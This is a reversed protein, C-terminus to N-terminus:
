AGTSSIIAMGAASIPTVVKWNTEIMGTESSPNVAIEGNVYDYWVAEGGVAASGIEDVNCFFDGSGWLSVPEGVQITYGSDALYTIIQANQERHVFGIRAANPATLSKSSVLGTASIYAFKGVTVGSADAVMKGSASLKYIMPNSSAFDGPLAQAPQIYVQTQFGM